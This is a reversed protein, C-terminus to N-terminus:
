KKDNTSHYIPTDSEQNLSTDREQHRHFDPNAQKRQVRETERKGFFWLIGIAGLVAVVLNGVFGYWEFGLISAATGGVFSGAIGVLINTLIGHDRNMSKEAIWGALFGIVLMGFFGVGAMGLIPQPNDM